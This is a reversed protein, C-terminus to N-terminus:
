FENAPPSPNKAKFHPNLINAEAFKIQIQKDSIRLDANLVKEIGLLKNTFVFSFVLNITTILAKLYVFFYM